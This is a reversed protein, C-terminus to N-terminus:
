SWTASRPTAAPARFRAQSDTGRSAYKAAISETHRILATLRSYVALSGIGIQSLVLMSRLQTVVIGVMDLSSLKVGFALLEQAEVM